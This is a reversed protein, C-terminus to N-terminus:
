NTKGANRTLFSDIYIYLFFELTMIFVNVNVILHSNQWNGNSIMELKPYDNKCTSIIACMYLLSYDLHILSDQNM